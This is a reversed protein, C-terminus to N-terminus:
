LIRYKVLLWVLLVLLAAILPLVIRSVSRVRDVARRQLGVSEEAVRRARDAEGRALEFQERQRGLAERQGDRIETLLQVIEDERSM